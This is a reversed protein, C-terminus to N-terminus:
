IVTLVLTATYAGGATETPLELRLDAGLKATGRGAGVAASGLVCSTSLGGTGGSLLPLVRPGPAVQQGAAQATVTPTWGLHTAAFTTDGATFPGRIQGTVNWGPRAARTDTVTVPRLAGGTEWRDGSPSLQPQPLAVTRDNPDVSVVLAGQTEDITVTITQSLAPAPTTTVTLAVPAATAV